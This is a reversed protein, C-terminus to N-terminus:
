LARAGEFLEWGALAMAFMSAAILVLFLLASITITWALVVAISRIGRAATSLWSPHRRRSRVIVGPAFPFRRNM